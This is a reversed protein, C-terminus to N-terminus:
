LANRERRDQERARDRPRLIERSGESLRERRARYGEEEEVRALGRDDIAPRRREPIRPGLDARGRRTDDVRGSRAREDTRQFRGQRGLLIM